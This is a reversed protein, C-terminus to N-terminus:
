PHVSIFWTDPELFYFKIYWGGARIVHVRVNVLRHHASCAHDRGSCRKLAAVLTEATVEGVALLNKEDIDEREESLYKGSSLAAIVAQRVAIFGSPEVM